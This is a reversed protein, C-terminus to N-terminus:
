NLDKIDIDPNISKKTLNNKQNKLIEIIKLYEELM